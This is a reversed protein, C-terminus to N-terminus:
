AREGQTTACRQAFPGASDAYCRFICGISSSLPATFRRSESPWWCPVHRTIKDATSGMFRGWVESHGSRGIVLLDAHEHMAAAIIAQAPHGTELLAKHQTVELGDIVALAQHQRERAEEAQERVSEDVEGVTGAFRPVHEIVSIIILESSHAAALLAALQLARESGGSGDYACVITTFVGM